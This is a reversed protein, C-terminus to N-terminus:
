EDNSSLAKIFWLWHEPKWLNPQNRDEKSPPYSNNTSKIIEQVHHDHENSWQMAAIHWDELKM